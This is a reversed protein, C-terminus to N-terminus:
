FFIGKEYWRGINFSAQFNGKEISNTYFKYAIELDYCKNEYIEGIINLLMGNEQTTKIILDYEEQFKNERYNKYVIEELNYIATKENKEVEKILEYIDIM